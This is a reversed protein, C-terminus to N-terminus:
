AEAIPIDLLEIKKLVPKESRMKGNRRRPFYNEVLLYKVVLITTLYCGNRRQSKM